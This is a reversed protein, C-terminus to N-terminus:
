KNKSDKKVPVEKAEADIITSNSTKGASNVENGTRAKAGPNRRFHNDRSILGKLFAFHFLLVYLLAVCLLYVVLMGITQWTLSSPRLYSDPHRFTYNDNPFSDEFGVVGTEANSLYFENFKTEASRRGEDDTAANYEAIFSNYNDVLPKVDTFFDQSFDLTASVTAVEEGLSDLVAVSKIAGNLQSQAATVMTDTLTVNYFGWNTYGSEIDRTAGLLSENKSAPFEIYSDVNITSSISFLYDYSGAESKFRLGTKNTVVGNTTVNKTSYTPNFIYIYYSNDYSNESTTTKEEVNTYYSVTSLVTSPFIAMDFADSNEEVISRKDLCGGHIMGVEAYDKSEIAENTIRQIHNFGNSNFGIMYVLFAIIVGFAVYVVKLVTKIM